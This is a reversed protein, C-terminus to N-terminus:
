LWREFLIKLFLLRIIFAITKNFVKFWFITFYYLFIATHLILRFAVRELPFTKAANSYKLLFIQACEFSIMASVLQMLFVMRYVTLLLTLFSKDVVNM